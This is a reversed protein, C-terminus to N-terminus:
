IRNEKLEFLEAALSQIALLTEPKCMAHSDHVEILQVYMDKTNVAKNAVKQSITIPVVVDELGHIIVTKQSWKPFAPHTRSDVIFNWPVETVKDTGFKPFPQSSKAEWKKLSEEKEPLIGPMWSGMDFAPCILLCRDVRDPYLEAFRAALYGGLSSGFIRWKFNSGKEKIVTEDLEHLTKIAGTFTLTSFDPGCNLDPVHMDINYVEKYKDRLYTGKYTQNSSAFGHLFVYEYNPDLASM